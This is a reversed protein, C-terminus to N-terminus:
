GKTSTSSDGQSGDEVKTGLGANTTTPKDGQSGDEVKTGLGANATTPKDGQSGDEVKTGLGADATTPKDGQSGDEVKTGLGANTQIVEDEGTQTLLQGNVNAIGPAYWSQAASLIDSLALTSGQQNKSGNAQVCGYATLNMEGWSDNNWSFSDCQNAAPITVVNTLKFGQNNQGFCVVNRGNLSVHCQSSRLEAASDHTVVALSTSLPAGKCYAFAYNSGPTAQVLCSGVSLEAWPNTKIAIANAAQATTSMSATALIISTTLIRKINQM